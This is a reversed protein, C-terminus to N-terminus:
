LDDVEQKQKESVPAASGRAIAAKNAADVTMVMQGILMLARKGPGIMFWEANAIAFELVTEQWQEKNAAVTASLSAAPGSLQLGLPNYVATFQEVAAAGHVFMADAQQIGGASCLETEIAALLEFVASDDKPLSKPEKVSLKHGFHKFYLRIKQAALERKRARAMESVEAEPKHVPTSVIKKVVAAEKKAAAVRAKEAAANERARKAEAKQMAEVERPDAGPFTQIDSQFADELVGEM